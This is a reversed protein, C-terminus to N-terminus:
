IPCSSLRARRARTGRSSKTSPCTSL